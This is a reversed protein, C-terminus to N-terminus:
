KHITLPELEECIEEEVCYLEFNDGVVLCKGEACCDVPISNIAKVDSPMPNHITCSDILACAPESICQLLVQGTDANYMYVLCRNIGCNYGALKCSITAM